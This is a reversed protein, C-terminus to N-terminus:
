ELVMFTTRRNAQHEEETCTECKCTNSPKSEGYGKAVLRDPAINKSELYRVASEARRQSLALNYKDAGRCDTHSALQIRIDPNRLLLDALENLTPQADQRIKDDDYDYYINNLVIEQNKVIEELNIIASLTTDGQTKDWSLGVTTLSLTNTFYGDKSAKFFYETETKLPITFKAAEDVRITFVTDESSVQVSAGTLAEYGAIGSNPNGKMNFLKAQVLGDLIIKAEAIVPTDVPTTDKIVEEKKWLYIHDYFTKNSANADLPRNSSLLGSRVLVSDVSVSDGKLFIFSFDDAGSNIPAKLNTLNVFRAMNPVREARFIDLGGMGPHGDSSFYLTDADLIPFAENGKTNIINGLNRPTMFKEEAAIWLASYLDYGGYGQKSDSAYFLIKEGNENEHLYPHVYNAQPEGLRVTTPETWGNGMKKSFKIKCYDIRDEENDSESCECFYMETYDKNFSPTANHALAKTPLDFTKIDKNNSQIQSLNAQYLQIFSRNTWKYKNKKENKDVPKDSSFLLLSDQYIVPSFENNEKAGLIIAETTYNGEENAQELWKKATRAAIIQERYFNLDGAQRGAKQYAKIAEDYNQIYLLMQAAQLAADKGYFLEDAQLFYQAANEYDHMKRHSVGLLYAAEAKNKMEKAKDLDKKLMPIAQAYQRRAYATKGDTIREQYTCANIALVCSFIALTYKSFYHIM